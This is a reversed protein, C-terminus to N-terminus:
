GCRQHQHVKDELADVTERVAILNQHYPEGLRDWFVFKAIRCRVSATCRVVFLEGDRFRKGNKNTMRKHILDVTSDNETCLVCNEPNM